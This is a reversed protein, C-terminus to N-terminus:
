RARARSILDVIKAAREAWGSGYWEDTESPPFEEDLRKELYAQLEPLTCATLDDLGTSEFPSPCSCGSDDAHFLQGDHNRWIVTYDFQYCGDSWDIEGVTALGYKEPSYYLSM